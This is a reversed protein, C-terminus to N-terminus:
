VKALLMVVGGLPRGLWPILGTPRACEGLLMEGESVASFIEM